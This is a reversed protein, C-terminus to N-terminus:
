DAEDSGDSPEAAGPSPPADGGIVLVFIIGAVVGYVIPSAFTDGIVLAIATWGVAVFALPLLVKWGLAMLRDYRIRPLTARIWIMVILLLITKGLLEPRAGPLPLERIPATPDLAVAVLQKGRAEVTGVFSRVRDAGRADVELKQGKGSGFKRITVHGHDAVGQLDAPSLRFSGLSRDDPKFTVIPSGQDLGREITGSVTEPINSPGASRLMLWPSDADAEAADAALRLIKQTEPNTCAYALANLQSTLAERSGKLPLSAAGSPSGAASPAHAQPAHNAHNAPKTPTVHGPKGYQPANLGSKWKVSM